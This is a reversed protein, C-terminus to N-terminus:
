WKINMIKEGKGLFILKSLGIATQSLCVNATGAGFTVDAFIGHQLLCSNSILNIPCFSKTQQPLSPLTFTTSKNLVVERVASHKRQVSWLTYRWAVKGSLLFKSMSVVTAVVSFFIKVTYDIAIMLNWIIQLIPLLKVWPLFRTHCM